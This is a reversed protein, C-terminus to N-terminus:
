PVETIKYGYVYYCTMRYEPPMYGPPPDCYLTFDQRGPQVRLRYVRKHTFMPPDREKPGPPVRVPPREFAFDDAWPEEAGDREMTIGPGGAVRLHFPGGSEVAFSLELEFTRVRDSPNFFKAQGRRTAWMPARNPTMADYNVFGDLWLILPWERERRCRAEFGAPDATRLWDRYPRLDLFFQERDEHVVEPVPVDPPPVRKFERVWIHGENEPRRTFPDEVVGFGRVDVVVGDYGRYVIRNLMDFPDFVERCALDRAWSDAERNKVAGFYWRVTQTHLYGRSGEYVQMRHLDRYEPFPVYPLTFVRAGGPEDRLRDEIAAFFRRDAHYKNAHDRLAEATWASFWSYPTQDLFGVVALAAFVPLRTRRTWRGTRTALFRDLPWLVAVLCVFALVVSFRNYCRVQSFFVFNFISGLGGVLSFLVIVGAVFALPGLPWGRRAPFLFALLLIAFGASGVAGLTSFRNENQAMTRFATNYRAKVRSLVTLNHDDVPLVLQPLKMAFEEAEEPMRAAVENKGHKAQYLFMPVHNLVGFALVTGILLGASAAARWDRRFWVAYAAAIAYVGCAFFAYYAGASATAAALVVQGVNAPSLAKGVVIVAPIVRPVRRLGGEVKERVRAPWGAGRDLLPHGGRLLQFMPTLSLPVVWYAALFYHHEYRLYHYPLFAYLLGAVAAAPLTFRLWRFVLMTTLATLPYTLLYYLNFVVVVDPIVRGMLWLIAFHLHDIVPFDYLEQGVPYGVDTLRPDGPCGARDNHWHTGTEVFAKVLPLILMADADTTFPASLDTATLRGTAPDFRVVGQGFVALVSTVLVTGAYWALRVWARPPPLVDAPAPPEEPAAAAAPLPAPVDGM